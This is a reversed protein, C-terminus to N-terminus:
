AGPYPKALGAKRAAQGTKALTESAHECANGGPPADM